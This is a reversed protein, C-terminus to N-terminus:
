RATAAALAGAITGAACTLAMDLSVRRRHQTLLWVPWLLFVALSGAVLHVAGGPWRGLLLAGIGTIAQLLLVIQAVWLLRDYFRFLRAGQLFDVVGWLAAVVLMLLAALETGAHVAVLRGTM